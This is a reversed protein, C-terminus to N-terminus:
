VLEKVFTEVVARKVRVAKRKEGAGPLHVTRLAGRNILVYVQRLSIRLESAVEKLTLLM